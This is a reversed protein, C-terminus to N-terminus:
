WEQIKQIVRKGKSKISDAVVPAEKKIYSGTTVTAEVITEGTAKLAEVTADGAGTNEEGNVIKRKTAHVAGVIAKGAAKGKVKTQAYSPEQESSESRTTSQLTDAAVCIASDMTATDGSTVSGSASTTDETAQSAIAMSCLIAVFFLTKKM